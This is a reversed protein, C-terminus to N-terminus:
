DCSAYVKVTAAASGIIAIHTEKAGLKYNRETQPPLPWDNATAAPLAPTNPGGHLWVNVDPTECYITVWRESDSELPDRLQVAQSSTTVAISITRRRGTGSAAQPLRVDEGLRDDGM